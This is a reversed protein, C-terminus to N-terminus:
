VGHPLGTGVVRPQASLGRVDGGCPAAWLPFPCHMKFWTELTIFKIRSLESSLGQCNPARPLLSRYCRADLSPKVGHSPELLHQGPQPVAASRSYQCVLSSSSFHAMVAAIRVRLASLPSQGLLRCSTGAGRCGAAAWNAFHPNFCPGPLWVPCIASPVGDSCTAGRRPQPEPM